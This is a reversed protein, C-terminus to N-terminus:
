TYIALGIKIQIRFLIYSWDFKRILDESNNMFQMFYMGSSLVTKRDNKLRFTQMGKQLM